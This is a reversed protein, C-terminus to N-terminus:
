RVSDCLDFCSICHSSDFVKFYGNYYIEEKEYATENVAAEEDADSDGFGSDFHRQWEM